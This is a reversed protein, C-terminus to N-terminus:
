RSQLVLPLKMARDAVLAHGAKSLHCHDNFLFLEKHSLGGKYARFDPYFDVYPVQVEDLIGALVAQPALWEKGTSRLQYEYPLVFVTVKLGLNRLKAIVAHLKLNLSKVMEADLYPEYDFQFWWRSSDYLGGKAALYLKSRSILFRNFDVQASVRRAFGEVSSETEEMRRQRNEEQRAERASGHIDNLSLVLIANSINLQARHSVLWHDIFEAYDDIGYGSVSANCSKRGLQRDLLEPFIDQSAVGVGFPVSDGIIITDCYATSGGPQDAAVRFGFQDTVVTAGWSEGISIPGNGAAAGFREEQYLSESQGVFTVQPLFVRVAIEGLFLATACILAAVFIGTVVKHREFVSM